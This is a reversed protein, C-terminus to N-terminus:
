RRSRATSPRTSGRSPLCSRRRSPPVPCEARRIVALLVAGHVHGHAHGYAYGIGRPSPSGRTRTPSLRTTRERVHGLMTTHLGAADGPGPHLGIGLLDAVDLGV